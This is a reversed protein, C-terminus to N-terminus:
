EFSENFLRVLANELIEVNQEVEETTPELIPGYRDSNWSLKDEADKNTPGVVVVYRNVNGSQAFDINRWMDGTFTLDTHGTQLGQFERFEEYSVGEGNAAADLVQSEGTQNLSRGLYFYAPVKKKSYSPLPTGDSGIGREQIRFQIQSKLGRGIGLVVNPLESNFKGPLLKLRDVFIDFDLAM